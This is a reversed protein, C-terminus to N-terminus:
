VICHRVAALCHGAHGGAAYLVLPFKREAHKLLSRIAPPDPLHVRCVDLLSYLV